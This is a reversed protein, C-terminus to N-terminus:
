SARRAAAAMLPMFGYLWTLPHLISLQPDAHSPYGAFLWSNWGGCSRVESWWWEVLPLFFWGLDIGARVYGLLHRSSSRGESALLM